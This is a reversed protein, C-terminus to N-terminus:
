KGEFVPKQKNFFAEIANKCDDTHSLPVQVSAELTIADGFSLTGVKKLLQKAARQALPAGKALNQAWESTASDLQDPPVVKNVLGMALCEQAPIKRGEIIAQLARSYGMGNLLHWTKGGDPILGIAAFALYINADEGIVCFDCTMAISGGIGAATRHVQAIYIKQGEHIAMLFPKYENVLMPEVKDPDLGEALDAGACFGPGNGKIIVIRVSDDGEVKEIAQLFEVRMLANFSNFMEPRNLTITAVAGNTDYLLTKM